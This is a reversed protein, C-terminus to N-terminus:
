KNRFKKKIQLGIFLLTSPIFAFILLAFPNFLDIKFVTEIWNYLIATGGNYLEYLLWFGGKGYKWDLDHPAKLYSNLWLLIGVLSPSLCSFLNNKASSVRLFRAGWIYLLLSVVSLIFYLIKEIKLGELLIAIAPLIGISIVVVIIHVIFAVGNNHKIDKFNSSKPKLTQVWRKTM